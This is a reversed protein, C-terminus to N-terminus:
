EGVTYGKVRETFGPVMVPELANLGFEPGLLDATRSSVLVQTGTRKNAEELRQALTKGINTLDTLPAM